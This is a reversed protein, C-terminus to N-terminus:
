TNKLFPLMRKLVDDRDGFHHKIAAAAHVLVLGALTFNLLRHLTALTEGLEKDKALLDPLPLIGFLVTQYGKASSMLWGSLPIAVMLVYLLRHAVEAALHQWAPMGAPPGPPRHTLRWVIRVLVLAFITVGAWKHWAYIQLKMPSLPLEHMYLGVAFTGVLALALLWHLGIATATYAATQNM